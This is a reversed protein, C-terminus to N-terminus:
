FSKQFLEPYYKPCVYNKTDQPPDQIDLPVTKLIREFREARQVDAETVEYGSAVSVKIQGAGCWVFVEDGAINCHGPQQLWETDDILSPFHAYEDGSYAVGPEPQLPRTDFRVPYIGVSAFFTQLDAESRYRFACDLSGGDNAHGGYARFFRFLRLRRAWNRLEHRPHREFLYQTWRDM